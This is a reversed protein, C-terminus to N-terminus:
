LAPEYNIWCRCKAHYPPYGVSDPSQDHKPQCVACVREDQATQVRGRMKGGLAEIERILAREGEVAARTTETIAITDAAVPGFASVIRAELQELTLREDYFSAVLEGLLGRRREALGHTLETVYERAWAAARAHMQAWEVGVTTESALQEVGALFVKELEPQLTAGYRREITQWVEATLQSLDPPDGLLRLVEDVVESGLRGLAEAIAAEFRSRQNLDPM